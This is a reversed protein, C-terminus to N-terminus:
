LTKGQGVKGALDLTKSLPQLSVDKLPKLIIQRHNILTELLRSHQDRAHREMRTWYKSTVGSDVRNSCRESGRIKPLSRATGVYM